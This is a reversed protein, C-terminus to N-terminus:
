QSKCTGKILTIRKDDMLSGFLCQTRRVVRFTAFYHIIIYVAHFSSYVLLSLVQTIKVKLSFKGFIYFPSVVISSLLIM